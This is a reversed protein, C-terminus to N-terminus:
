NKNYKSPFRLPTPITPTVDQCNKCTVPDLGTFPSDDSGTESDRRESIFYLWDPDVEYSPSPEQLFLCHACYVLVEFRCARWTESLLDTVNLTIGLLKKWSQGLLEVTTSVQITVTRTNYDHVIHTSSAGHKVTAGNRTVKVDSRPSTVRNLVVVTTLQYVYWPLSLGGLVIKTRLQLNGDTQWSDGMFSNSIYPVIYANQRRQELPGHVIFFCKLLAIAAESPFKSYDKLLSILLMEDLVGTTTFQEVLAEYKIQGITQRNKRFSKFQKIREQWQDEFAHHFLLSIMETIAKVKHFIYGRLGQANEFWLLRGSNHMYRLITFLDEEPFKKKADELLIYAEEKQNEVFLGVQNWINPITVFYEKCRTDLNNKLLEISSTNDLDNSFEFVDESSFISTDLNAIHKISCFNEASNASCEFDEELLDARILEVESLFETKYLMYDNDSFKDVHTLALIPAGLRPCALYLHSLWDFCVRRAAERAGNMEALRRFEDLNVVILPICRERIVLQYALHYVEHGGYDVLKVTSSPLSLEEFQFVKTTEDLPSAEQRFTLKRKGQQLSQVLSTKGSLVQGLVAVPVETLTVGETSVIDQFYQNVASLGEECVAYPPYELSENNTCNLSTLQDLQTVDSEIRKLMPNYSIDLTNLTRLQYVALPVIEFENEHLHLTRLEKLNEFSCNM